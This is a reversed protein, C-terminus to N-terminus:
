NPLRESADRRQQRWYLGWAFIVYGVFAIGFARAWWSESRFM